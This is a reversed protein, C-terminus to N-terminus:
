SRPLVDSRRVSWVFGDFWFHMLSIVLAVAVWPQAMREFAYRYGVGMAGLLVVFGLVAVGGGGKLSALGFRRRINAKETWWVIGFYQLAHFFNAVFFAAVPPLFGWAVISTLAVSVLLAIKQPSVAYGRRRMRWYAAVYFAVYSLGTVLVVVKIYGAAEAVATAFSSTDINVRGLAHALGVHALLNAGGLIPGIYIVHNLWLDLARGYTPTNGRKADYIRCLGFNQASSHYVDWYAAVVFALTFIWVSSVMAVYLAIPALVFRLRHRGFIQPNLHSRFVVACLHAYTLIPVWYALRSSRYDVAGGEADFGCVGYVLALGLLPSFIFFVADYLPAAIYGRKSGEATTTTFQSNDVPLGSLSPNM